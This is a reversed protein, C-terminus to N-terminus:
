TAPIPSCLLSLKGQPDYRPWRYPASSLGRTPNKAFTAWAGMIYKTIATQAATNIGGAGEATEFVTAIESGHWAGSSPDATLRLNPFEGFYRYRWTPVKSSARAQATAGVPCTFTQLNLIAWQKLSWPPMGMSAFLVKIIGAEYDNNGLLM